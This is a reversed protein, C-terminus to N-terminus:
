ACSSRRRPWTNGANRWPGMGLVKGRSDTIRDNYIVIHKGSLLTFPIVRADRKTQEPQAALLKQMTEQYKKVAIFEGIENGSTLGQLTHAQIAIRAQSNLNIFARIEDDLTVDKMLQGTPRLSSMDYGDPIVVNDMGTNLLKMVFSMPIQETKFMLRYITGVYASYAATGSPYDPDPVISGTSMQLYTDPDTAMPWHALAANKMDRYTNLFPAVEDRRLVHSFNLEFRRV